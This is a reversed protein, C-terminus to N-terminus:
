FLRKIILFDLVAFCEDSESNELYFGDSGEEFVSWVNEGDCASSTSNGDGANRGVGSSKLSDFGDDVFVGASGFEGGFQIGISEDDQGISTSNPL